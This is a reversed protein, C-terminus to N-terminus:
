KKYYCALNNCTLSYLKYWDENDKKTAASKKLIEEAIRLKKRAGEHGDVALDRM